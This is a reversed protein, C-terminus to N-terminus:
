LAPPRGMDLIRFAADKGDALEADSALLHQLFFGFGDRTSALHAYESEFLPVAQLVGHSGAQLLADPNLWDGM